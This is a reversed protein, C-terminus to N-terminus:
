MLTIQMSELGGVITCCLRFSFHLAPRVYKYVYDFTLAPESKENNKNTQKIFQRKRTPSVLSLLFLSLGNLFCGFRAGQRYIYIYLFGASWCCCDEASKTVRPLPVLGVNMVYSCYGELSKVLGFRLNSCSRPVHTYLSTANYFRPSGSSYM